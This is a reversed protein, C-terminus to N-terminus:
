LKTVKFGNNISDTPPRSHGISYHFTITFEGRGGQGEVELLIFTKLFFILFDINSDLHRIGFEVPARMAVPASIQV